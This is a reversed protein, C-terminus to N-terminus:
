RLPRRLAPERPLVQVHSFLIDALDDLHNAGDDVDLELRSVERFDVVRQVDHRVPLVTRRHEVDDAFDLLVQALVADAGDGHLRAVAHLAPHLRGVEAPRNRHRDSRLREPAHQVHEALGHVERVPRQGPLPPRNVALRRAELILGGLQLHELGADLDDVQELRVQLAALDPQEAAGAHALGDDDHLQDVVDGHLVAAHRHEAADAFARALAVVEPVLELLAADDVHLVGALRARRQHVALHRLRRAGAQADPQRRQGDGLVEAVRFALVHQEEDVVDEPERLGAGFHRREEAAHRRRDAVLRRQQGLHAFQLFPDRGRLVARDRRHLRDVHGGVVVRVRRRRRRERMEVRRRVQRACIASSPM